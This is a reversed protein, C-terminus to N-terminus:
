TYKDNRCLLLFYLVNTLLDPYVRTSKRPFDLGKGDKILGFM